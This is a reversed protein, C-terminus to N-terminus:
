SSQINNSYSDCDAGYAAGAACQTNNAATRPDEQVYFNGGTNASATNGTVTTNNSGSLSVGYAANNTVTNGTITGKTSVEYYIGNRANGTAKNGTIVIDSAQLDIWLGNANNNIFQNNKITAGRTYTFKAGAAVATTGQMPNNGTNNESIINNEVRIGDAHNVHLGLWNNKTITNNTVVSNNSQVSLGAAASDQFICSDITMGNAISSAVIVMAPKQSFDKVSAYNKFGIGRLLGGGANTVFFFAFQQTNQGDMWVTEGPYAEITLQKSITMSIGTYTGARLAITAGPTASNVASQFAASTTVIVANQPLTYPLAPAPAEKFVVAKGDSATADQISEAPASIGAETETGIAPTAAKSSFLM